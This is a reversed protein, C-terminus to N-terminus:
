VVILAEARLEAVADRVAPLIKRQMIIPVNDVFGVDPVMISRKYSRGAAVLTVDAAISRNRPEDTYHRWPSVTVGPPLTLAPMTRLFDDLDLDAM